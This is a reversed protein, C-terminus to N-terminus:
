FVYSKIRIQLLLRCALVWVWLSLWENSLRIHLPLYIRALLVSTHRRCHRWLLLSSIVVALGAVLGALMTHRLRLHLGIVVALRALMTHRLRLHLGIFRIDFALFQKQHLGIVLVLRALLGAHRRALGLRHRFWLLLILHFLLLLILHFLLLLILHFWLLLILHNM